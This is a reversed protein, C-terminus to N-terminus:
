RTHQSLAAAGAPRMAAVLEQVGAACGTMARVQLAAQQVLLDLGGLVPGGAAAWATALVTPWPDYVVDFLTGPRSPVGAVLTDAGAAPVTSVVLPADLVTGADQWPHVVVEVGLRQGVAMVPQAVAPRRAVVDITRYGAAAL